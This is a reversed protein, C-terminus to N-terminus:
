ENTETSNASTMLALDSIQLMNCAETLIPLCASVLPKVNSLKYLVARINSLGDTVVIDTASNSILGCYTGKHNFIYKM